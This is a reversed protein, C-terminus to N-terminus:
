WAGGDRPDELCSYQLLNGNGEGVEWGCHHGGLACSPCRVGVRGSGLGSARRGPEGRGQRAGPASGGGVHEGPTGGWAWKWSLGESRAAAALHFVFTFHLRETM